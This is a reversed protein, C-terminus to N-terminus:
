HGSRVIVYPWGRTNAMNGQVRESLADWSYRWCSIPQASWASLDCRSTIAPPTAIMVGALIVVPTALLWLRRGHRRGGLM